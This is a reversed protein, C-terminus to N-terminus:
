RGGRGPRAANHARDRDGLDRIFARMEDPTLNCIFCDDGTEVYQLFAGNAIELESPPRDDEVCPNGIRWAGHAECWQQDAARHAMTFPCLRDFCEGEVHDEILTM